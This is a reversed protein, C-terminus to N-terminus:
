CTLATDLPTCQISREHKDEDLDLTLSGSADQLNAIKVSLPRPLFDLGYGYDLAVGYIESNGRTMLHAALHGGAFGTIGTILARTM